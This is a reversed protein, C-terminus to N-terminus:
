LFFLVFMTKDEFSQRKVETPPTEEKTIWVKSQQKSRIKRHYIWTEDGTVIDCLRWTNSEFKHLNELCIDIRRQKQEPTLQHPVWRSVIKRLGLHQKLITDVVSGHSIDLLTAIYDITIHPDENVLDRVADINQQTIVSLPRGCRPDDELSETGNSFRHIWHAVTSYSVVGQGYATILEDHIQRANLGLLL